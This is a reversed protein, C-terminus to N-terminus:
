FDFPFNFVIDFEQNGTEFWKYQFSSREKLRIGFGYWGTRKEEEVQGIPTSLAIFIRRTLNRKAYISASIGATPSYQPLINIEFGTNFLGREESPKFPLLTYLIKGVTKFVPMNELASPTDRLLLISLIEDKSKPPSSSFNIRPNYASGSLDIFIFTDAISTSIRASIYPENQIVKINAFDINYRNKMFYIEGYIISIDGNVLPKAATGKIDMNFEAYAKGWKGYLYVPIYSEATIDLSVRELEKNESSPTRHRNKVLKEMDKELRVKGSVSLKGKLQANLQEKKRVMKFRLTSTLNGQFINLYKVPLFQTSGNINLYKSMLSGSGDINILSEGLVVDPSKGQLSVKLKGQSVQILFKKFEIIGMTYATKIGLNESHIELSLAKEYQNLKGDYSLTYSLDGSSNAYKLLISLLNRDISGKSFLSLKNELIHYELKELKGKIIGSFSVPNGKVVGDELIVEFVSSDFFYIYNKSIAFNQIKLRGTAKEVAGTPIEIWGGIKFFQVSFGEPLKLELKPSNLNGKLTKDKYSFRYRIDTSLINKGRYFGRESLKGSVFSFDGEFGTTISNHFEGKKIKLASKGKLKKQKIDATINGKLFMEDFGSLGEGNFDVKLLSDEMVISSQINEVTYQRYRFGRRWLNGKFSSKNRSFNGRFRGNLYDQLPDINLRSKEINISTDWNEKTAKVGISGTADLPTVNSFVAPLLEKLFPKSFRTDANKLNIDMEMSFPQFFMEFSGNIRGYQTNFSVNLRKIDNYYELSFGANELHLKKYNFHHATGTFQVSIFPLYGQIKGNGDIIGGFHFKRAYVMDSIDLNDFSLDVEISNKKFSGNIFGFGGPNRLNLTFLGEIKKNDITSHLSGERYKIGAFEIGGLKFDITTTKERFDVVATGTTEGKIGSFVPNKLSLLKVISQLSLRDTKIKLKNGEMEYDASIDGAYAMGKLLLKEKKELHFDTLVKKVRYQKITIEPLEAKGDAILHNKERNWRLQAKLNLDLLNVEGINSRNSSINLDGTIVKEGKISLKGQLNRSQFNGYKLSEATYSVNGGTRSYEKQFSFLVRFREMQLQKLTLTKGELSGNFAFNGSFDFSGQVKLPNDNLFTLLEKVEIHDPFILGSLKDVKLEFGNYVLEFPRKIRFSDFDTLFSFRNLRLTKGEPFLVKVTFSDIDSKVFYLLYMLPSAPNRTIKRKKKEKELRIEALGKELSIVVSPYERKVLKSLILRAKLNKLFLKSNRTTINLYGCRLETGVLQCSDDISIGFNKAIVKRNEWIFVTLLVILSIVLVLVSLALLFNILTRKM